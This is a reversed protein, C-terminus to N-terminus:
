QACTSATDCNSALCGLLADGEQMQQQTYAPACQQACEQVGGDAPPVGADPDGNLCLVICNVYGLCGTLNGSGDVASDGM